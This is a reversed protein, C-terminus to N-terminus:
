VAVAVGRRALSRCLGTVLRSKGADSSTGCVMLAGRLTAAQRTISM